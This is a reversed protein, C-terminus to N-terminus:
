RRAWREARSIVGRPPVRARPVLGYGPLRQFLRPYRLLRPHPDEDDPPPVSPHPGLGRGHDLYAVDYYCRSVGVSLLVEELEYAADFMVM